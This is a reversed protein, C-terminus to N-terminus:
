LAGVMHEGNRFALAMVTLVPNFGGNTPHLAADNVFLNDHGWVRGHQDTVSAAPDSGMRCTGAQHQGASLRPQQPTTWVRRAEAAALWDAARDLMFRASRMTEPHAVGSMRAVPLGFRDTVEPDLTVRSVPTPIEHVPGKVQIVRRYNDRMFDKAERGWRRLRPPLASQWFIVPLMIFDDALMGGGIIGPNGHNWDCTGITVGPGRADYVEEDFLGFATPYYHGQLHRGVQDHRNGLGDPERNTRSALLLRATEIAGAALVVATATAMEPTPGDPGDRWYRVGTV